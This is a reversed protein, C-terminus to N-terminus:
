TGTEKLEEDGDDNDEDDENDGDKGAGSKVT